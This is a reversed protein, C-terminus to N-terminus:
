PPPHIASPTPQSGGAIQWVPLRQAKEQPSEAQQALAALVPQLNAAADPPGGQEDLLEELRRTLAKATGLDVAGGGADAAAQM